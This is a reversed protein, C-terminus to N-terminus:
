LFILLDGADREECLGLDDAVVVLQRMITFQTSFHALSSCGEQIRVLRPFSFFTLPTDCLNSVVGV